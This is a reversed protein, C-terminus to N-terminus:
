VVRLWDDLPRRVSRGIDDAYGYWFLGVTRERNPDIDLLELVKPDRTIAGTSWKTGIGRSWLALMLNQAFCCCAAYDEEHRFPDPNIDCTLFLWGPIASWQTRKQEAAESGSKERTLQTNIEVVRKRTESTLWRVRWPESLKHNPAWRAVDLAARVLEDNVPQPRFRQVTRRSQIISDIGPENQLSTMEALGM